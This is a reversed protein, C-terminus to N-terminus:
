MYDQINVINKIDTLQLQKILNSKRILFIKIKIM